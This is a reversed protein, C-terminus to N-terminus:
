FAKASVADALQDICRDIRRYVRDFVEPPHGYPDQVARRVIPEPDLDGMIVVRRRSRGTLRCLRRRQGPDMVVVVDAGRVEEPEVVRSM